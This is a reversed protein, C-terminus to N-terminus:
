EDPGDVGAARAPGAPMLEYLKDFLEAQVIGMNGPAYQILWDGEGGQLVVAQGPQGSQGFQGARGSRGSLSAQFTKGPRLALVEVPNSEYEGDEGQRTPALARYNRNFLETKVPWVECAQGTLLADGRDYPVLGELTQLEGGELAFHVSVRVRRKLARRSEALGALDVGSFDFQTPSSAPTATEREHPGMGQLRREPVAQYLRPFLDAKVVYMDSPDNEPWVLWDGQEGGIYSDADWLTFLKIPSRLLKARVRSQERSVCKRAAEALPIRRGSDKDLVVPSYGFDLEARGPLIDYFADFRRQEIPYVEGQLGIMLITDDNSEISIDGELMRLHMQTRHPLIDRVPVFALNVPKKCYLGAARTDIGDLNGPSGSKGLNRKLEACDVLRYASYYALLRREFYEGPTLGPCSAEFNHLSIYGGAKEAHGGGSGLGGAALWAALHSAKAERTKTRVSYKIGGDVPSYVVGVDVNDVQMVLDSVFGLINPDCCRAGVLAFRAEANYSLSNLASSALALDDLSLNSNKLVKIIRQNVGGLDRLDRDLPHRVEAFGGTDSFLGYQLATALPQDVEFGAGKLLSWVLTACSGLYPRIDHLQPPRCEEIHHDIVAVADAQMPSVNGAGHQCDVCILLGPWTKGPAHYELPIELLSLMKILNPKSIKSKGSYVLTVPKGQAAFYRYLGYGSAIADADPNDHCQIAVRDYELLKRLM